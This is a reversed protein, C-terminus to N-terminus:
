VRGGVPFSQTEVVQSQESVEHRLRHMEKLLGEVQAEAQQKRPKPLTKTETRKTEDANDTFFHQPVIGSRLFVYHIMKKPGGDM